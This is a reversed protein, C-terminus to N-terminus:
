FPSELSVNLIVISMIFIFIAISLIYRVHYPIIPLPKHLSFTIGEDIFTDVAIRVMYGSYAAFLVAGIIIIIKM